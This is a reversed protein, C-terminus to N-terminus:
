AFCLQLYLFLSSFNCSPLSTFNCNGRDFICWEIDIIIIIVNEHRHRQEHWLTHVFPVLSMVVTVLSPTAPTLLLKHPVIPRSFSRTCGTHENVKAGSPWVTNERRTVISVLFEKGNRWLIISKRKSVIFLTQYIRTHTHRYVADWWSVSLFCFASLLSFIFLSLSLSQPERCPQPEIISIVFRSYCSGCYRPKLSRRKTAHETFASKQRGDKTYHFVQERPDHM